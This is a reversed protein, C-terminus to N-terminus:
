SFDALLEPLRQSAHAVVKITAQFPQPFASKHM